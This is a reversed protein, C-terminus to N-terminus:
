GAKLYDPVAIGSADFEYAFLFPKGTYELPSTPTLRKFLPVITVGHEGIEGVQAIEGVARIGTRKDRFVHVIIKFAKRIKEHIARLPLPRAAYILNELRSTSDDCSNAHITSMVVHGTNGADVLDWAEDGRTEGIIIWDPFQRLMNKVIQKMTVEGQGDLNPNSTVHRRVDPHQLRLELSDEATVISQSHPILGSLANLWTTKGAGTGGAILIGLDSEIAMKLFDAAQKTIPAPNMELLQQITFAYLFRRISMYPGDVGVNRFVANVRSGDPLWADVFPHLPDFPRNTPLLIQEIVRLLHDEDEFWVNQLWERKRNEEVRIKGKGPGNVQIESVNPRVLIPDLPGYGSLDNIMSSIINERNQKLFISGSNMIRKSVESTIIPTLLERTERSGRKGLLERHHEKVFERVENKLNKIELNNEESSHQFTADKAISRLHYPDYVQTM